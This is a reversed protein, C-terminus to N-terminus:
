LCALALKSPLLDLMILCKIACGRIPYRHRVRLPSSLFTPSTTSLAKATRDCLTPSPPYCCAMLHTCIPLKLPTAAQWHQTGLRLCGWSKRSPKALCAPTQPTTISWQLHQRKARQRRPPCSRRRQPTPKQLLVPVFDHETPATARRECAYATFLLVSTRDIFFHETYAHHRYMFFVCHFLFVICVTCTHLWPHRPLSHSHTRPSSASRHFMNSLVAVVKRWARERRQM